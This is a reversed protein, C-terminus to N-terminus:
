YCIVPPDILLSADLAAVPELSVSECSVCVKSGPAAGEQSTGAM